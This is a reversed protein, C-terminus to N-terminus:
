EVRIVGWKQPQLRAETPIDNVVGTDRNAYDVRLVNRAGGADSFIVGIDGKLLTGAAPTLGLAALPVAAELVYGDARRSVAVQAAQVVGVYDYAEASVPSSFTRPAREGDKVVPRYLVCVPQGELLAFLLRVDGAAPRTRRPDAAPDSALFLECADGTKFLLAADQGANAFPSDDRVDFAVYLNAQDHALAVQASHAEDARVRGARSLDWDALDGDPKPSGPVLALPSLDSSLGQRRQAAKLAQAHDAESITLEAEATRVTDLGTVEWVRVDTDGAILYFRGDDPSRFFCGSFNEPWVTSQDAPPGYRNDKCLSAIWLGGDSLLNFQGFYGNVALVGMGGDLGASGIFKMAGVVDGPKALPSELGFGLWAKRYAWTRQGDLSYRSIAQWKAGGGYADGSAQEMVYVSEGLPLVGHVQGTGLATFIPQQESPKPYVPVGDATWEWVPVRYIAGGSAAASWITLEQDVWAGWYLGWFSPVHEIVLEDQQVLYDGNRDAWWFAFAHPNHWFEERVAEPLDDRVFGHLPLAGGPGVASVPQAVHDIVRYIVVAGRGAHALYDRGNVRRFRYARGMYGGDPTLQSGHMQPRILTAVTRSAGTQYNVDYLTNHLNVASPGTEDAIGEVAYAGPGALDALLRGEQTWVSIRRPTDDNECVWVRGEPDVTVGTPRLLGQPDFAGVWPRGGAKGITRVPSGDPGYVKLQMAEGQDTVYIRGQGDLCLGWPAALGSTVLSTVEGSAPDVQVVGRGSVVVMRREADLALGVPAPVPYERLKEGTRWNVAVIKDELYLSGYLTDGDVAVGLLNLGMEQPGFDHDRFREWTRKRAVVPHYISQRPFPTLEPKGVSDPWESLVLCRQGFPFNVPKGTRADWLVVGAKNRVNPDTSDAGWGKGDQSVFVLEGNTALGTVLIGIDLVQSQGWLKQVKGDSTFDKRIAVVASGAESITWGLYVRESDAAAAIPPGHDGGWAGTGDDTRWPPNGASHLSTVYRQGVGRHTLVKVTYEGPPLPRGDDDAGDWRSTLRAEGRRESLTQVPLTRVLQPEAGPKPRTWIAASLSRAQRDAAPLLLRLPEEEEAPSLPREAAQLNGKALLVAQGWMGAGQFSFGAARVVDNFTVVSKWGGADGWLPQLVLALRDGAQPPDGAASLLAWPVRAELTYGKQDADARFVVGSEGGRLVRTGHYNMGHQVHLVPEKRDTFYWITLHCLRDSNSDALPYPVDPDSCLRVQLCDAAWGRDPEIAPDHRNVLPTDDAFHAGIYLAQADYMLSADMTFRPALAEDFVAAMAASHDWEALSGDMKVDAPAPVIFVRDHRAPQGAALSALSLGVVVTSPM